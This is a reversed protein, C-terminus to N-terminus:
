VTRKTQAKGIVGDKKKKRGVTGWVNQFWPDQPLAGHGRPSWLGKSSMVLTPSPGITAQRVASVHTSSPSANGFSVWQRQPATTLHQDRIGDQEGKGCSNGQSPALHGSCSHSQLHVASVPCLPMRDVNASSRPRTLVSLLGESKVKM